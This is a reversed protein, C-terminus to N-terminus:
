SPHRRPRRRAARGTAAAAVVVGCLALELIWTPLRRSPAAPLSGLAAHLAVAADGSRPGHDAGGPAGPSPTPPPPNAVGIDVPMVARRGGGADAEVKVAYTGLGPAAALPLAMVGPEVLGLDTTKTPGGPPTAVVRVVAPASLTVNLRLPVGPAVPQGPEVATLALGPPGSQDPPGVVRVSGPRPGPVVSWGGSAAVSVVHGAGDLVRFRGGSGVSASARSLDLAVKISSPLQAPALTVPRIGGYYAALIDAARLGRQAKGLAGYQSMGVGHGWGGGELVVSNTPADVVVTFRGSPVAEPMGAPAPLATNLRVRFDAVAVGM